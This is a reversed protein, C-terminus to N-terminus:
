VLSYVDLSRCKCFCLCASVPVAETRRQGSVPKQDEKRAGVRQGLHKTFNKFGVELGAFVNMNERAM